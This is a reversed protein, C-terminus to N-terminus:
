GDSREVFGARRAVQRYASDLLEAVEDWDVDSVDIRLALWGRAGHHPSPTFRADQRLADLENPDALFHLSRGAGNWRPRPPSSAGNFLAFRRRGVRFLPREQLEGEDADPLRLCLRRLRDLAVVDDPDSLALVFGTQSGPALGCRDVAVRALLCSVSQRFRITLPAIRVVAMMLPHEQVPGMADVNGQGPKQGGDTPDHAPEPVPDVGPRGDDADLCDVPAEHHLVRSIVFRHITGSGSRYLHRLLRVEAAHHVYENTLHGILGVYSSEAYQGAISGIPEVLEDETLAALHRM